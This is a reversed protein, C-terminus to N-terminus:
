WAEEIDIGNEELIDFLVEIVSAECCEHKDAIKSIRKAETDFVEITTMDTGKQCIGVSSCSNPLIYELLHFVKSVPDAIKNDTHKCKEQEHISM